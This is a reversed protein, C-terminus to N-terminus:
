KQGLDDGYCYVRTRTGSRDSTLVVRNIYMGDCGTGSSSVRDFLQENSFGCYEFFRIEKRRNSNALKFLLGEDIDYLWQRDLEYYRSRKIGFRQASANVQSYQYQDSGIRMHVDSLMSVTNIGIGETILQAASYSVASSNAKTSMITNTGYIYPLRGLSKINYAIIAEWLSSSPKVYIYNEVPTNHEVSIQPHVLCSGVLGALDVDSIIGPEPENQAALSTYSRASFSMRKVGNRHSISLKDPIGKFVVTNNWLLRLSCIEAITVAKDCVFEGSLAVYPTYLERELKVELGKDFEKLVGSGNVIAVTIGM